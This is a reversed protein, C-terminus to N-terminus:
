SEPIMILILKRSNTKAAKIGVEIAACSLPKRVDVGKPAYLQKFKEKIVWNKSSDLM